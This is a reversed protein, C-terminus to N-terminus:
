QSLHVALEAFSRNFFLVRFLRNSKSLSYYASLCKERLGGFGNFSTLEAVLAM